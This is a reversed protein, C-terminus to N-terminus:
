DQGNQKFLERIPKPLSRIMPLTTQYDENEMAGALDTLFEYMDGEVKTQLSSSSCGKPICTESDKIKM